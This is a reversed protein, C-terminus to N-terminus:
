APEFGAQKKGTKFERRERDCFRENTGSRRKTESYGLDERHLAQTPIAEV